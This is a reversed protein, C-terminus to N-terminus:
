GYINVEKQNDRWVKYAMLSAITQNASFTNEVGKKYDLTNTDVNYYNDFLVEILDKGDKEYKSDRINENSAAFAQLVLSNSCSNGYDLKDVCSLLTSRDVDKNYLMSTCYQWVPADPGWTYNNSIAVKTLNEIKESQINLGYSAAVVFPSVFDSYTDELTEVYSNAFTTLSSLDKGLAKSYLYYKYLDANSLTTVDFSELETKVAESITDYNFLSSDYFNNKGVEITMLDWFSSDAFSTSNSLDLNKMYGYIVKDVLLDYSDLIGYGSELTNWCEVKFEFVDNADAKLGDVGTAAAVDNEYIALYYNVDIISGNIRSLYPGYESTTYEVEFNNVLDDFVTSNENITIDKEGLLEGDIDTVKIKYSDVPAVSPEVSPQTTPEVSPQPTPEQQGCSVLMLASLLIVLKRKM